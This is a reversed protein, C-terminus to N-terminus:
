PFPRPLSPEDIDIVELKGTEKYAVARNSSM